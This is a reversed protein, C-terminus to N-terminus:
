SGHQVVPSSGCSVMERHPTWQTKSPRGILVNGWMLADASQPVFWPCAGTDTEDQSQLAPWVVAQRWILYNYRHKLRGRGKRSRIWRRNGWGWRREGGGGCRKKRGRRQGRGERRRKKKPMWNKNQPNLELVRRGPPIIRKKFVTHTQKNARSPRQQQTRAERITLCSLSQM